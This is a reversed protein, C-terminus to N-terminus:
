LEQNFFESTNCFYLKHDKFTTMIFYVEKKARIILEM